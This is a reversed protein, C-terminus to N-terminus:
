ALQSFPATATSTAQLLFAVLKEVFDHLMAFHQLFVGVCVCENKM